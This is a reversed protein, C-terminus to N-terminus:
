ISDKQELIHLYKIELIQLHNPLQKNKQKNNYEKQVEQM